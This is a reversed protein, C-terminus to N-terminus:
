RTRQYVSKAIDLGVVQRGDVRGIIQGASM